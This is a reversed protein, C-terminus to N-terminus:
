EEEKVYRVYVLISVLVKREIELDMSNRDLLIIISHM